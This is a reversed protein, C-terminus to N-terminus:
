LFYSYRIFNFIFTFLDWISLYQYCIIIKEYFTLNCKINFVDYDNERIKNHISQYLVKSLNIQKKYELKDIGYESFEYIKDCREIQYKILKKVNELQENPITKDIIRPIDLELNVNYIEQEKFPIYIRSPCMEYDERIDRIFNTLQFAKGLSYAYDLLEINDKEMISYMVEGIIEASGVMYEELQKFTNYRFKYLDMRMSNFFYKICISSIKIKYFTNLVAPLINFYDQLIPDNKYIYSIDLYLRNKRYENIFAFTLNEIDILKERRTFLNTDKHDSDVINDIVRVFAYFASIHYFKEKEFLIAGLYYTKAHKKFIDRCIRYSEKLSNNM